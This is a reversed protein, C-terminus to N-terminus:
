PSRRRARTRRIPRARTGRAAARGIPAPTFRYGGQTDVHERVVGRRVLVDLHALVEWTVLVPNATAIADSWLRRAIEFTTGCGEAVHQTVRDLRDAHFALRDDILGSHDDIVPGHGPYCKGLAMGKTERLSRLYQSLARRREEGHPQAPVLEVGSTVNALLHDGVFAEGSATDVFLTDSTSHGPRFVARLARGAVALEEGDALVRDVAFPRSQEVITAFFSESSAIAADPVGHAAMLAFTFRREADALEHFRPGWRATAGHAAILAGSREKITAVSGSHDLHHHTLVVVRVDQIRVGHAGLQEELASLAEATAPGSDILTLPEGELLWVNVSRAGELPLEIRHIAAV